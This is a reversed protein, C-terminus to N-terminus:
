RVDLAGGSGSALAALPAMEAADSIIWATIPTSRGRMALTRCDHGVLNLGARGALDDSIVLEADVDKALGELRSAANLTDGVATLSTAQGYGMEGVIAPGTHLSMAVQLPRDLESAFTENLAAIGRRILLAAEVAQRSARGPNTSLGFLALVGDGVFKDVHGGAEEIAHGVVEFYRNLIFVTDFPLRKEALNTFGRMDCFLVAIEREQGRAARSSWGPDTVGGGRASLVPVVTLDHTPRFQCALRVNAGAKV